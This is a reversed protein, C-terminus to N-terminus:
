KNINENFIEKEVIDCIIHGIMIHSEQINATIESPVSITISCLNSMKSENIGTMGISHVGMSIATEIAKVINKSNGSTSLCILVDNKQCKAKILRSYIEEYSYDNAVATIYSTNCHLADADLPDRDIKFRGSLEAAIHQADAASGGNGCILVKNKNKYCNIIINAVEHIKNILKEDKLINNKVEISKSISDIIYKKM